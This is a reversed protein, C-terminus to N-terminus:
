EGSRSGSGILAALRIGVKVRVRVRVRVRVGFDPTLILILNFISQSSQVTAFSIAPTM